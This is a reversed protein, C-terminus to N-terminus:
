YMSQIPNNRCIYLAAMFVQHAYRTRTIHSAHLYSDATGTTAIGSNVLAEYWESGNLRQEAVKLAAMEIQLGCFM